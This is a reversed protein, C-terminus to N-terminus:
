DEMLGYLSWDSYGPSNNGLFEYITVYFYTSDMINDPYTGCYGIYTYVGPYLWNPAHQTLTQSITQLPDIELGYYRQRPYLWHNSYPKRVKWWVDTTQPELTTNTLFGDYTFSGGAPIIIEPDEPIMTITVEPVKILVLWMDQNWNLDYSYGSALYHGDPTQVISNGRNSTSREFSKDWQLTGMSDTKVIYMYDTWTVDNMGGGALAFGGDGTQCVYNSWENFDPSGYTQSWLENGDADYKILMADDHWTMDDYKSTTVVYGGDSTQEVDHFGAWGGLPNNRTWVTDGVADIKILYGDIMWGQSQTSGAIIFGGDSTQEVAEAANFRYEGHLYDFVKTWLTDGNSDTRILLLATHDTFITGGLLFGGDDAEAVADCQWDQNVEGAYTRTWVSDGNSDTKVVYVIWDDASESYAYGALVFGGDFTPRMERLEDQHFSLGYTRAWLSDGNSDTKVLYYDSQGLGFSWTSGGIIYGGDATQYANYAQDIDFGGYTRTWLTDQAMVSSVIVFGFIVTLLVRTKM